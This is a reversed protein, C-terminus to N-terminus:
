CYKKIFDIIKKSEKRKFNSSMAMIVNAELGLLRSQCSLKKNISANKQYKNIKFLADKCTKTDKYCRLLLIDIEMHDKSQNAMLPNLAVFICIYLVSLFKIKEFLYPILFYDGM